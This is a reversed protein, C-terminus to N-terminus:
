HRLSQLESTHEESRNSASTFIVTGTYTGPVLAGITASIQVTTPTQGSTTQVTLWNGGSQTAASATWNIAASGTAGITVTQPAVNGGTTGSYSLTSPSVTLGPSGVNMTVFVVVTNTASSSVLVVAGTYSGVAM